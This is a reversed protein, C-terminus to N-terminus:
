GAVMTLTKLGTVIPVGEKLWTVSPKPFGHVDCNLVVEQNLLVNLEKAMNRIEPAESLVLYVGQCMHLMLSM